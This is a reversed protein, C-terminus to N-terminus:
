NRVPAELVRVVEESLKRGVCDEFGRGAIVKVRLKWGSGGEGEEECQVPVAYFKLFDRALSLGDLEDVARLGGVAGPIKELDPNESVNQYQVVCPFKNTDRPWDTTATTCNRVVDTLGVTDHDLSEALQRQAALLQDDDGTQSFNVRLPIRNLYCGMKLGGETSDNTLHNLTARVSVVLGIVIDSEGTLKSLAAACAYNFLTAHTIGPPPQPMAIDQAFINPAGDEASPSIPLTTLKSGSLIDRWYDYSASKRSEIHRVYSAWQGQVITTPVHNYCNELLQLTEGLGIADYIAHSMSFVLRAGSDSPPGHILTIYVPPAGLVPGPPVKAERALLKDFGAKASQPDHLVTIPSPTWSDFIAQYLSGETEFFATRYIDCQELVQRCSNLLRQEDELHTFDIYSYFWSRRPLVPLLDDRLYFRQMDTVPLIDVLNGHGTQFTQAMNINRHKLFTHPDSPVREDDPVATEAPKQRHSITLLDSLHRRTLVDAVTFSLKIDGARAMAVLKMASISDGGLQIFNDDMGFSNPDVSLARAVIAHLKKEKPTTPLVRHQKRSTQLLESRPISSAMKRLKGRDVKGSLTKPISEVVIYANPIMYAPITAVLHDKASAALDQADVLTQQQQKDTLKVFAILLRDDSDAPKVIDVVVQASADGIATLVHHEVEELEVRQGRIKIQADKRGIFELNGDEHYRVLDGTRYLVVGQRGKAFGPAGRVLWEPDRIFAANTKVKDDLYGQGVVPGEIWLEGVDGIAVLSKGHEPEVIWTTTGVGKGIIIRERAPDVVHSVALPTCESPGYSHMIRTAGRARWYAIEERPLTEGGFNITTLGEAGRLLKAVTPTLQVTNIGMRAIPTVPTHRIEHETPICLCGGACLTYLFQFWSVDFAYSALDYSRTHQNFGLADLGHHLASSFNSHSIIAGKPTGTSGSTFVVYAWTNPDVVPLPINEDDPLYLTSDVVIIRTTTSCLERARAAQDKSALVIRPKTLGFITSLREDPLTSDLVVSTGGAKMVALQSVSTWKSKEFLLPVIGIGGEAASKLIRRALQTSADDLQRYTFDGDWACIAQADPQREVVEGFIEHIPIHCREVPAGNWRWIQQLDARNTSDLLMLPRGQVEPECLQRLVGELRGAMRSFWAPSVVSSDYSAHLTVGNPRLSFELGISIAYPQYSQVDGSDSISSQFLVNDLDERPAAMQIVVHSQFQCGLNCDESMRRIQQLGVQEFPVMDAAQLQVRQLLDKVTSGPDLRMRLPVTAFTPGTISEVGPIPAQRGSVTAGFCVDSSNTAAAIIIAWALRIKTAATFDGDWVLNNITYELETDCRPEYTKSPLPPFIPAETERFQDTWYEEAQSKDCNRIHKVFSQFRPPEDYKTNGAYAECFANLILPRSWGDYLAHHISWSFTSPTITYHVLPSGLLGFESNSDEDEQLCREHRVVVQVLGQDALNVIRTRLIQHTKMVEHWADLLRQTDVGDKLKKTETLINDGPRRVTEALLGEQLPTCPFIDEIDGQEIGCLSAAQAKAEDVSVDGLNSAILSFPGVDAFLESSSQEAEIITALDSLKPTQFVDAVSFVVGKERAASVLRMAGLSDGGIRFFSADASVTKPDLRLINAWLDRLLKEMQTKPARYERPGSSLVDIEVLEELTMASYKARLAKKDTKGNSTVPFAELGIYVTPIMYEPIMSALREGLGGLKKRTQQRSGSGCKIYTVLIAGEGGDPRFVDAVVQPHDYRVSLLARQINTEIEGLETRQGRIKVQSDRRGVCILNGSPEYRVLDGTKYFRAVTNPDTWKPRTVFARATIEENGLYGRGVLPGELWLEGIAGFPSLRDSGDITVIWTNLGYGIGIGRITEAITARISCEAPGYTNIVEKHDFWHVLDAETFPEGGLMVTELEPFTAPDLHRIVSPTIDLFTAKTERLAGPLDNRRQHESPICLCSGSTLTHLVNSWAVDFSYSAFDFVRRGPRFGMASQQYTIASSFNGHSIMAGKPHGTSGSTFCVYVLHSPQVPQPLILTGNPPDPLADISTEDVVFIVQRANLAVARELMTPSCLIVNSNIQNVISRAREVPQASDIAVGAGGAKMVAFVSVPEWMSKEFYLPVVVDPGVGHQILKHALRTSLRDLRSYTLQGDHASIAPVDPMTKVTQAFIDHVLTEVAAPVTSNWKNISAMDIDSVTHIQAVQLSNSAPSCIQRLVTELQSFLRTVQEPSIVRSDFSATLNAGSLHLSLAVPAGDDQKPSNVAWVTQFNCALATDGGLARLGHLGGLEPLSETTTIASQVYDLFQHVTQSLDMKTRLPRGSWGILVDSSSGYSGQLVAWAALVQTIVDRDQRWPVDEMGHSATSNAIVKESSFPLKPFTCGADLDKFQSKWREVAEPEHVGTSHLFYSDYLSTDGHTKSALYTIVGLLTQQILGANAPSVFDRRYHLAVETDEKDLTAELVLDYEHPDEEMTEVLKLGEEAIKQNRTEGVTITTNFLRKVGLQHQIEALSVHQNDLHEINFKHTATMVKDLTQSLDIRAILMNILPGVVGEIGEVDIDRGSSIYGFCVEKMGTLRSLVLSWVIQLFASRTINTERCVQAIAATASTPLTLSGFEVDKDTAHRIDGPLECAQVGDLYETWYKLREAAPNQHELHEVVDRFPTRLQMGNGSHYAKEIDRALVRFSLADMLAHTMELRCAVESGDASVCITFFCQPQSPPLSKLDVSQTKEVYDIASPATCLLAKNVNKLVVQVYRGTDPHTAFITSCAPHMRAVTKWAEALRTVSIGALEARWVCVSQYSATGTLASLLIGEQMPTCPYIDKIDTERVGKDALQKTVLTDLGTYSMDGLLPFDMLTFQRHESLASLEYAVATLNEAYLELWCAVADHNRMPKHTRTSIRLTGAEVVLNMDVLSPRKYDAGEPPIALNRDERDELKFISEADELQQFSGRYNFIIEPHKHSKFMEQGALNHYRSAFYPRGKGPVKRRTDKAFKIMDLISTTTSANNNNLQVPFISTFWGVTESLDLSPITSLPERGHTEVFVAPPRRDTFTQAFSYVLTGLLIDLIETAMYDNSTGLLLSTAQKEVSSSHWASERSALPSPKLGWYDHDPDDVKFPLVVAPNLTQADERQLRCWRQFSLEVPLLGDFSDPNTLFRDIDHWIVRWSVLDMIVHHASMLLTQHSAGPSNFVDVAFVPGHILNLGAQRADVVLQMSASDVFNHQAFGFSSSGPPVTYEEWTQSDTKRFRARLMGHRTTVAMLADLLAELTSQRTLKVIYSLSYHNAGEPNDDFFMQQIPSLPWGKGDEEEGATGMSSAKHQQSPNTDAVRALSRITQMKLINAVSLLINEQRCRSVVQMATISDGGLRTFNTDLTIKALPMNLVKNWVRRITSETKSWVEDGTMQNSTDQAELQRWYLEPGSERLSKRDVKGTATMPVQEVVLFASPVMYPPVLKALRDQIGDTLRVLAESSESSGTAVYVFAVLTPIQSDKPKIVDALIRINAAKAEQSLVHHLHHEIEGLEVRQGRIKVQSDKRGVFELNGDPKYRVLDGTRYLRGRRGDHTRLSGRLLWEPDEVFAAATKEPERLYGQGVIPGEVWLEGVEGVPVLDSGDAKVVWTCCGLARGIPPDQDQTPDTMIATSVTSCEAPGYAHVVTAGASTLNKVLPAKLPEGGMHFTRVSSPLDSASFWAVSPTLAVYTPKYKHLAAIIDGKREDDSPICLCGGSTLTHILNCWAVDFAYSTFDFVRDFEKFGLGKQQTVVASAYNQHTIIAGKPTGTSGSTFVVYCRQDSKVAPLTESQASPWQLCSEHDVLVPDYGLLEAAAERYLSSTLILPSQVLDQIVQQRQMPLSADLVTSAAGAKMVAFQAVPVWKSKEMYIVVIQDIQLGNQILTHCLRTSLDDLERYTWDGDHACVAQAEPHLEARSMFMDHICVDNCGAPPTANWSWVQELEQTTIPKLSILPLETGESSCIERAIHQWQRLIHASIDQDHDAPTTNENHSTIRISSGSTSCRFVFTATTNKTVSIFFIQEQRADDDSTPRIDGLQPEFNRILDGVSEKWKIPITTVTDQATTSIKIHDDKAYSSSVIAWSAATKITTLGPIDLRVDVQGDKARPPSVIHHDGLYIPALHQHETQYVVENHSGEEIFPAM